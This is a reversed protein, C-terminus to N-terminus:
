NGNGKEKVNNLMSEYSLVVDDGELMAKYQEETLYKEISTAIINMFENDLAKEFNICKSKRSVGRDMDTDNLTECYQKATMNVGNINMAPMHFLFVINKNLVTVRKATVALMAHASYVDGYVVVEIDTKSSNITNILQLTSELYGGHGALYLKAKSTRLGNIYMILDRYSDPDKIQSSLYIAPVGDEDHVRFSSYQVMTEFHPTASLNIRVKDSMLTFSMILAVIVMSIPTLRTMMKDGQLM